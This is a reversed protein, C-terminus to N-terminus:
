EDREVRAIRASIGWLLLALAAVVLLLVVLSSLMAGLLLWYWPLDHM